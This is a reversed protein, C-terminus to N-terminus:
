AHEIQYLSVFVYLRSEDLFYKTTIRNSVNKRSFLKLTSM